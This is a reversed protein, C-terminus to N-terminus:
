PRGGDAASRLKGSAPHSGAGLSTLSNYADFLVAFEDGSLRALTDAEPLAKTIREAM